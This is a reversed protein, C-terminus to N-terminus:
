HRFPKMFFDTTKFKLKYINSYYHLFQNLNYKDIRPHSDFIYEKNITENNYSSPYPNRLTNCHTADLGFGNNEVKSIWPVVTLWNNLHHSMAWDVAWSNIKNKRQKRFMRLFDQGMESNVYQYSDHPVQDYNWIASKWRDSWTAWGWSSPRHLFYNTYDSTIPLKLSYGSISGINSYNKYFSLAETMFSIFDDSIVLDDELVIVSDFTIFANDIAKIVSARCGLNQQNFHTHVNSLNSYNSATIKTDNVLIDNNKRPGDIHIHITFEQDVCQPILRELLNKLQTPRNFAIVIIAIKVNLRFLLKSIESTNFLYKIFRLDM